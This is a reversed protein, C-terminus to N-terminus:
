DGAPEGILSDLAVTLPVAIRRKSVAGIRREVERTVKIGERKLAAVVDTRVSIGAKRYVDPHIILKRDVVEALRYVVDFPVPKVAFSRTMNHNQRLTAFLKAPVSPTRHTHIIRALQFLDANSMRICGHSAPAGLDDEYPTGHIYLLRAFNIKVRGMPNDPGPPTPQDHRAWHSDPPHWWPNWIVKTIRYSGRPTAFERRGASVEFSRTRVGKEFVDLRSAPINLVLRLDPVAPQLARSISTGAAAISVIALGAIAWRKISSM